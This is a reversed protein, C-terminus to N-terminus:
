ASGGKAPEALGWRANGEEIAQHLGMADLVMQLADHLEATSVLEVNCRDYKTMRRRRAYDSRIRKRLQTDSLKPFLPRLRAVEEAIFEKSGTHKARAMSNPHGHTRAWRVSRTAKQIEELTPVADLM